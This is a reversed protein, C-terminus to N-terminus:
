YAPEFHGCARDKEYRKIPEPNFMCKGHMNSEIVDGPRHYGRQFYSCYECKRELPKSNYFVQPWGFEKKIKNGIEAAQKADTATKGHTSIQKEGTESIGYIVIHSLNLQERIQKTQKISINM